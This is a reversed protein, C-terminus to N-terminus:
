ENARAAAPEVLRKGERLVIGALMVKVLGNM